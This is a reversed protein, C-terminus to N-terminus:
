LTVITSRLGHRDDLIDLLDRHQASIAPRSVYRVLRELKKREWPQAAIGAHISFGAAKVV